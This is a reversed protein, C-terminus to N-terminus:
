IFYKEKENTDKLLYARKLAHIRKKNKVSYIYKSHGLFGKIFDTSANNEILHHAISHRLSHLSIKKNILEPNNTRMIIKKLLRNLTGGTTRSGKQSVFFASQSQKGILRNYRFETIYKKIDERVKDSMPVERRRGGKGSRVIVIGSFLHADNVDLSEIESRRLGCGYGLALLAREQQDATQEYLMIVEEKALYERPTETNGSHRPILFSQNLVGKLLLNEVFLSISLLHLRVTSESLLDGKISPENCLHHYYRMMDKTTVKQIQTIGHEEMWILFRKVNSGYMKGKYQRVTVFSNYEDFLNQYTPTQIKKKM